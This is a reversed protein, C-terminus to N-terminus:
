EHGAEAESRRQQLWTEIECERWGVARGGPFIPFPKPFKGAASMVSLTSAGVGLRERVEAARVIRSISVSMGRAIDNIEQQM